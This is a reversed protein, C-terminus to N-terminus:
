FFHRSLCMYGLQYRAGGEGLGVAELRGRSISVGSVNFRLEQNLLVVVVNNIHANASLVKGVVTQGSTPPLYYFSM